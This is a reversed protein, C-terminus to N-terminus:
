RSGQGVVAADYILSIDTGSFLSIAIALILEAVILLWFDTAFVFLTFGIGHFFTALILVAKRGFLDSIYGSPVEFLLLCFGFFAQLQYINEMELGRSQFYPIIVPMLVMLAWVANLVFIVHINRKLSM